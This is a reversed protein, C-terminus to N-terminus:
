FNGFCLTHPSPCNALYTAAEAQTAVGLYDGWWDGMDRISQLHLHPPWGGNEAREGLWGICQGMQIPMGVTLNELSELSLHGFLTYRSPMAANHHELILTAGYDLHANNFRFSHIQSDCPAFVPTGAIAWLDIGLHICRHAANFHQSLKYIARHEAYGGYAVQAGSQQRTWEVYENLGDYTEVDFGIWDQTQVSLTLPCYDTQVFQNGLIPFLKNKKTM